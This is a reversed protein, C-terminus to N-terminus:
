RYVIAGICVIANVVFWLCYTVVIPPERHAVGYLIWIINFLAYTGFTFPSVNGAAQSGYINIIQPITAIPGAVGAVFVIRDLFRLGASKAPYPHFQKQSRRKRLHIHFLM